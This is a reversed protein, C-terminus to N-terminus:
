KSAEDGIGKKTLLNKIQDAGFGALFIAIFAPILDLKLIQEKAGAIMGILVLLLALFFWLTQWLRSTGTKSRKWQTSAFRLAGFPWHTAPRSKKWQLWNQREQGFFSRWVTVFFRGRNEALVKVWMRNPDGGTKQPYPDADKQFSPDKVPFKEQAHKAEQAEKAEPHYRTDRLRPILTVMFDYRDARQFYHSVEWGEETLTPELPHTFEWQCIWDERAAAADLERDLFELKFMCPQFQVFILSQAHIRVRNSEVAAKVDQSFKGEQIQTILRSALYAGEGSANELLKLLEEEHGLIARRGSDNQPLGDIKLLYSKLLKLQFLARDVTVYDEPFMHKFDTNDVIAVTEGWRQHIRKWTESKAIAGSSIDARAAAIRDQLDAAFKDDKHGAALLQQELDNIKDQAKQMDLATANVIEIIEEFADEMALIKTPPLHHLRLREFKDRTDGMSQLIGVRKEIQTTAQGISQMEGAFDSSTWTLKRLREELLREDLGARVRVRSTLRTSSLNSIKEQLEGLKARLRSKQIHSPLAFNLLVSCFGGAFLFVFVFFDSWVERKTGTDTALHTKINFTKAMTACGGEDMKSVVLRGDATQDKFLGVFRSGFWRCPPVFAISTYSNGPVQVVTAPAGPQEGAAPSASSQQKEGQDRRCCQKPAAPDSSGATVGKVMYRWTIAYNEGDDNKLGFSAPKGRVFTLEPANENAVDLSLKLPPTARIVEIPGVDIHENKLTTEWDGDEFVRSVEVKIWVEENPALTTKGSPQDSGFGTVATAVPATPLHKVPSKSTLSTATPALQVPASGAAGENRVKVWGKASGEPNCGSNVIISPQGVLTLKGEAPHGQFAHAATAASIMVVMMSVFSFLLFRQVM